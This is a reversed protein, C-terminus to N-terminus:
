TRRLFTSIAPSAEIVYPTSATFRGPIDSLSNQRKEVIKSPGCWKEPLEDAKIESLGIGENV